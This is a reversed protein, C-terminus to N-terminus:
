RPAPDAPDRVLGGGCAPCRATNHIDTYGWRTGCLMCEYSSDAPEVSSGHLMANADVIASSADRPDM